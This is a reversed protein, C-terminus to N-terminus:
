GEVTLEEGKMTELRDIFQQFEEDAAELFSRGDATPVAGQSTPELYGSEELTRLSYRVKHHPYGSENSLRVIGIPEKEAVLGLIQMHRRILDVEQELQDLM